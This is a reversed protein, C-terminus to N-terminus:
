LTATTGGDVVVCSGVMYAAADSALFAAVRAIESPYAMRGAPIAKIEEALDADSLTAGEDDLRVMDTDTTGPAVANVRIGDAILEMAISRTFALVAGKSAAYTACGAWSQFSHVSATNIIWGRRRARMGPVVKRSCLFMGRINISMTRDWAEVSTDELNTWCGVGANNCLVDIAGYEAVIQDLVTDVDRGDAVDLRRAASRGDPLGHIAAEARPLSIDCAVVLDGAEVFEKAMAGGIGGGGGTIVVVRGSV